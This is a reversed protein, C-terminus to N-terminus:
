KPKNYRDIHFHKFEHYDELSIFYIEFIPLMELTFVIHYIYTGLLKWHDFKQGVLIAQQITNKFFTHM